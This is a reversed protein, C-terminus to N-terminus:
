LDLGLNYRSMAPREIRSEIWEAMDTSAKAGEAVRTAFHQLSPFRSFIGKRVTRSSTRGRDEDLGLQPISYTDRVQSLLDETHLQWMTIEYIIPVSFDQDPEGRKLLKYYEKMMFCLDHVMRQACAMVLQMDTSFPLPTGAKVAGQSCCDNIKLSLACASAAMALFWMSDYWYDSSQGYEKALITIKEVYRIFMSMTYTIAARGTECFITWEDKPVLSLMNCAGMASDLALKEMDDLDSPGTNRFIILSDQVKTCLSNIEDIHSSDAM